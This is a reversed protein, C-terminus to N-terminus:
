STAPDVVRAAAIGLLLYGSRFYGPRTTNAIAFLSSLPAPSSRRDGPVVVKVNELRWLEPTEALDRSAAFRIGYPTLAFPTPGQFVVFLTKGELSQEVVVGSRGRVRLEHDDRARRAIRHGM